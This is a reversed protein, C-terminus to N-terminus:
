CGRVYTREGGGRHGGQSGSSTECGDKNMDAQGERGCYFLIKFIFILLHQEELQIADSVRDVHTQVLKVPFQHHVALGTKSCDM